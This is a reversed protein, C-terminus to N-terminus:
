TEVIVTEAQLVTELEGILLQSRPDPVLEFSKQYSHDQGANDGFQEVENNAFSRLM